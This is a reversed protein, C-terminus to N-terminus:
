EYINQVAQINMNEIQVFLKYDDFHSINHCFLKFNIRDFEDKYENM